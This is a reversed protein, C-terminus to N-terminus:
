MRPADGFLVIHLSGFADADSAEPRRSHDVVSLTEAIASFCDTDIM